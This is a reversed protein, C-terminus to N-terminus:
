DAGALKPPLFWRLTGHPQAGFHDLDVRALAGKRFDVRLSEAGLLYAALNGFLPEHGALLVQEADRHVRLESWVEAPNANPILAQTRLVEEKYGLVEAALAATEVARRYPSSIILAPALGGVKALRLVDRLKRRGELTLARESDPSGPKGAEAIGHRLLYLQM